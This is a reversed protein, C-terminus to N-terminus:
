SAVEAVPRQHELLARRLDTREQELTAIRASYSQMQGTHLKMLSVLAQQLDAEREDIRDIEALAIKDVLVDAVIRFDVEDSMAPFLRGLERAIRSAVTASGFTM